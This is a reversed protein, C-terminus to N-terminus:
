NKLQAARKNAARIWKRKTSEAVFLYKEGESLLNNIEEVSEAKTIKDKLSMNTGGSLHIHLNMKPKTGSQM